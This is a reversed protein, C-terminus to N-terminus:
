LPSTVNTWTWLFIPSYIVIHSRLVKNLIKKWVLFRKACDYKLIDMVHKNFTQSFRGNIQFKSKYTSILSIITMIVRHQMIAYYPKPLIAGRIPAWTCWFLWVKDPFHLATNNIDAVRELKEVPIHIKAPSLFFIQDWKSQSCRAFWTFLSWVVFWVSFIYVLFGVSLRPVGHKYKGLIECIGEVAKNWIFSRSQASARWSLMKIRRDRMNEQIIQGVGM